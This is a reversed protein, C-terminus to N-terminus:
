HLPAKPKTRCACQSRRTPSTQLLTLNTL